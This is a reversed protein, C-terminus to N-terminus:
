ASIADSFSPPASKEETEEESHESDSNDSLGTVEAKIESDTRKGCIAVDHDCEIFRAFPLRGSFRERGDPEELPIFDTKIEESFFFLDTNFGTHQWCKWSTEPKVGEWAAAVFNVAQVNFWQTLVSLFHRAIPCDCSLCAAETEALYATPASFPHRILSYIKNSRVSFKPRV